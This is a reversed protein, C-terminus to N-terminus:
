YLPGAHMTVSRASESCTKGAADRIKLHLTYDGPKIAAPVLTMRHPETLDQQAEARV